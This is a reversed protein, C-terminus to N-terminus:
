ANVIRAGAYLIQSLRVNFTRGEQDLYDADTPGTSNVSKITSLSYNSSLSPFFDARFVNINQEASDVRYESAKLDPNSEFGYNLCDDLTLLQKAAVSDFGSIAFVIVIVWYILRKNM